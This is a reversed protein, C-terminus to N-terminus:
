HNKEALPMPRRLSAAPAAHSGRRREAPAAPMRAGSGDWLDGARREPLRAVRRRETGGDARDEPFAGQLRFDTKGILDPHTFEIGAVAAVRRLIRSLLVIAQTRNLGEIVPPEVLAALPAAAECWRAMLPEDLGCERMLREFGAISM